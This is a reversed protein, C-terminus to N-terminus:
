KPTEEKVSPDENVKEAYWTINVGQSRREPDSFDELSVTLVSPAFGHRRIMSAYEEARIVGVDPNGGFDGSAIILKGGMKLVKSAQILLNESGMAPELFDRDNRPMLTGAVEDMTIYESLIYDFSGGGVVEALKNADGLYTPRFTPDIDITKWGRSHWSETNPGSGLVIGRKGLPLEAMAKLCEDIMRAVPTELQRGEHYMQGFQDLSPLVNEQQHDVGGVSFSSEEGM